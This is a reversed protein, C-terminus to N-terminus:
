RRLHRVRVSGGGASRTRALAHTVLARVSGDTDAPLADVPFWRLQESEASAVPVAGAPVEAVYQVDLHHAPRVPGCPVEHRSLLVPTPDLRLGDIGSEEVSERLAAEALTADGRECHGGLQLWRRLKGHLTLLVRSRDGSLLVASATVHDPSCERWVGDPRAQLHRLYHSRLEEQAQDPPQWRTLVDAADAHLSV